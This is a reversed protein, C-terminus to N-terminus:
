ANPTSVGSRDGPPGLPTRTEFLGLRRSLIYAVLASIVFGIGLAVALVAVVILPEAIDQAVLSRSVAQLGFGVVALVIGAQISFLIRGVPASVSRSAPDITIPASELFRRGAPTQVYALLDQNSTFRDLLKSHVETQVKSVRLWRRHDIVTRIIWTILGIVAVFVSFVAVGAMVEEFMRYSRREPTDFRNDNDYYSGLFFSPNRVIEPHQRVFATLNQYPSMYQENELLSPDLRLVDALSPPYQRLIGQVILRTENANRSDINPLIQPKRAAEPNQAAGSGVALATCIFLIHFLRM